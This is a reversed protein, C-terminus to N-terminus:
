FQQTMTEPAPGPPDREVWYSSASPDRKLSLLDRGSARMILGIPVITTLYILGLVIPNVVKFLVLGLKMWARNLPALGAPWALGFVVLLGGIGALVPDLVGYGGNLWTRVAAILVLIGGVTLGFGRDSSGKVEESRGYDEHM